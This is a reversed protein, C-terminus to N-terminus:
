WEAPNYDLDEEDEDDDGDVTGEDDVLLPDIPEVAAPEEFADLVGDSIVGTEKVEEEEKVEEKPIEKKVEKLKKEPKTSKGKAKM